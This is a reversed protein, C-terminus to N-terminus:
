TCPILTLPNHGHAGLALTLGVGTFRRQREDIAKMQTSAGHHRASNAARAASTQSGAKTSLWEKEQLHERV